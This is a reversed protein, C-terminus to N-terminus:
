NHKLRRYLEPKMFKGRWMGRQAEKAQKEENRFGESGYNYSVAWGSLVMAKNLNVGDAYCISLDRSYTDKRLFDCNVYRNKILMKLYNTSEAGCDYENGLGDFCMQGYEPADIGELRIRRGDIELSDGDVVKVKAFVDFSFFLAWLFFLYKV